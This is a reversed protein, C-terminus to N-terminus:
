KVIIKNPFGDGEPDLKKDVTVFVATQGGQPTSDVKTAKVEGSKAFVLTDGPSVPNAGGQPVLFYFQNNAGDKTLVGKSFGSGSFNNAVIEAKAPQAVPAPAPAPAPAAAPAPSAPSPQAPRETCAALVFAGLTAGLLANRKNIMM